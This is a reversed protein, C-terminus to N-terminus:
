KAGGTNHALAERLAHEAEDTWYGCELEIFVSTYPLTLDTKLVLVQFSRGAEELRHIIQDHPLSITPTTGLTAALTSRFKGIGPAYPEAVYPLEADVYVRPRVHKASQVAALVERLVTFHDSGTAVLKIGPANQLPYASDVVVIWNRHGLAPLAQKLELSWDPTPAAPAVLAFGALLTVTVLLRPLKM